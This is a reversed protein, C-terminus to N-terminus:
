IKPWQCQFARTETPSCQRREETLILTRLPTKLETHYGFGCCIASYIPKGSVPYQYWPALLPNCLLLWPQLKYILDEQTRAPLGHLHTEKMSPDRWGSTFLYKGRMQKGLSDKLNLVTTLLPETELLTLECHITQQM